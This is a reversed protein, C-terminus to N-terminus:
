TFGLDHWLQYSIPSDPLTWHFGELTFVVALNVVILVGFLVLTLKSIMGFEVEGPTLQKAFIMVVGAAVLMVMFTILSWTYLHLGLVPEGYGLDGPKIHLLIQRTAIVAGVVSAVISMGYGRALDTTEVRGRRARAIVTAPGLAVLVMAMRQLMCLPCPYEGFGFQIVFGGILVGSYALVVLHSFWFGFISIRM